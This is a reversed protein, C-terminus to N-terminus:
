NGSTAETITKPISNGYRYLPHVTFLYGIPCFDFSLVNVIKIRGLSLTYISISLSFIFCLTYFIALSPQFSDVPDSVRFENAIIYVLM